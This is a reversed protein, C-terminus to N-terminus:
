NQGVARALLEAVRTSTEHNLELIAFSTPWMAGDDLEASQQFGLTSYRSTFHTGDQFFMITKGDRSWALMGYWTRRELDPAVRGALAVLGDAIDREASTMRALVDDLTLPARAPPKTAM